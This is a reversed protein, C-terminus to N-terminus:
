AVLSLSKRLIRRRASSINIARSAVSILCNSGTGVEIRRSGFEQKESEVSNISQYPADFTEYLMARPSPPVNWSASSSTLFSDRYIFSRNFRYKGLFYQREVIRMAHSPRVIPSSFPLPFFKRTISLEILAKFTQHTKLLFERNFRNEQNLLSARECNSFKNSSRSM